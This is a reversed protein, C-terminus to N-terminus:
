EFFACAVEVAGQITAQDAPVHLIAARAVGALGILMLLTFALIKGSVSRM